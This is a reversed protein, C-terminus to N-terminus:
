ISNTRFSVMRSNGQMLGWFQATLRKQGNEYWITRAGHQKDRQYFALDKIATLIGNQPLGERLGHRFLTSSKPTSDPFWEKAEGHPLGNVMNVEFIEAM